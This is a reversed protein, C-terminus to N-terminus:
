LVETVEQVLVPKPANGSGKFKQPPTCAHQIGNVAVDPSVLVAKLLILQGPNSPFYRWDYLTM